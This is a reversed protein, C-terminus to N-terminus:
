LVSILKLEHSLLTTEVVAAQLVQTSPELGFSTHLYVFYTFFLNDSIM